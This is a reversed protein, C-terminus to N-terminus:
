AAKEEDFLDRAVACSEIRCQVFCEKPTHGDKDTANVDIGNLSAKGLM